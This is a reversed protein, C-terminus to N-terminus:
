HDSPAWPLQSQQQCSPREQGRIIVSILATNQFLYWLVILSRGHQQPSSSWIALRGGGSNKQITDLGYLQKRLVCALLPRPWRNGFNTTSKPLSRQPSAFTTGHIQNSGRHPM